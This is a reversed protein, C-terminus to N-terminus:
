QVNNLPLDKFDNLKNLKTDSLLYEEVYVTDNFTIKSSYPM